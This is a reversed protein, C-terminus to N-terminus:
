FELSWSVSAGGQANPTIVPVEPAEPWATSLLAATLGAGLSIAGATLLPLGIGRTNYVDPCDFRGRGDTCTVDGHILVLWAGVAGVVAGGGIFGAVVGSSLVPPAPPFSVAQPARPPASVPPQTAPPTKLAKIDSPPPIEPTKPKAKLQFGVMLEQAREPTSFKKSGLEYGELEFRATHPGPKVKLTIPTTGPLPNGDLTVSAGPPASQLTVQFEKPPEPKLTFSLSIPEKPAAEPTKVTQEQPLYGELEVKVAYSGPDLNVQLPAPGILSGNISVKAGAPSAIIKLPFVPPAEPEKPAPGPQALAKLFGASTIAETLKTKVEAETCFECSAEDSKYLKKLGADFLRVKISFIEDINDVETVFIFRILENSKAIDVLSRTSTCRKGCGAAELSRKTRDLDLLAVKGKLGANSGFLGRAHEDFSARMPESVGKSSVVPVFLVQPQAGEAYVKRPSLTTILSLLASLVAVGVCLRASLANLHFAQGKQSAPSRQTM